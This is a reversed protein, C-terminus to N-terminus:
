LSKPRSQRPVIFSPSIIHNIYRDKGREKIPLFLADQLFHDLSSLIVESRIMLFDFGPM